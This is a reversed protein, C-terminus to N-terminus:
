ELIPQPIIALDAFAKSFVFFIQRQLPLVRHSSRSSEFFATIYNKKKKM